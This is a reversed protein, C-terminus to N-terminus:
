LKCVSYDAKYWKSKAEPTTLKEFKGDVMSGTRASIEKITEKITKEFDYGLEKLKDPITLYLEFYAKLRSDKSIDFKVLGAKGLTQTMVVHMDNYADVIEYEDSNAEADRLEKLEEAFMRIEVEADFDTLNRELGWEVIAKNYPELDDTLNLTYFKVIAAQIKYTHESM